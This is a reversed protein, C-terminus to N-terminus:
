ILGRPAAIAVFKSKSCCANWWDMHCDPTKLSGDFDKILCSTVFGQIVEATLM